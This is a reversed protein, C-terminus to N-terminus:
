NGSRSKRRKVSINADLELDLKEFANMVVDFRSEHFLDFIRGLTTPPVGVMKAFEAKSCKLNRFEEYLLAKTAALPSLQLTKDDADGRRSDSPPVEDNYDIRAQIANKIADEAIASIRGLKADEDNISVTIEPFSPARLTTYGEIDEVSYRYELKM